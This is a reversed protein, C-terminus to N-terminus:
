PLPTWEARLLSFVVADLAEGHLLLRSRLVGERLAGIKEAVRQSARNGTAALIELRLLDTHRFAWDALLRAAATMVGRGAASSRIWYGFNARRNVSDLQNLSCGGLFRGDASVITFHYETGAQFAAVQKEVWAQAEEIAYGAHCWPLWRGVTAVSERAAEFLRPVDDLQYPRISIPTQTPKPPMTPM